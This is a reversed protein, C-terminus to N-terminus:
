YDESKDTTIFIDSKVGQAVPDHVLIMYDFGNKKLYHITKDTASTKGLGDLAKLENCLGALYAMNKRTYMKGSREFMVNTIVGLNANAKLLDFVVTKDIKKMLRPPFVAHEPKIHPHYSHTTSGVGNVVYYTDNKIGIWFYFKCARNTCFSRVTSSRRSM